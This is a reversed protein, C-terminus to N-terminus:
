VYCTEAYFTNVPRISFWNKYVSNIHRFLSKIFFFYIHEHISLPNLSTETSHGVEITKDKENNASRMKDLNEQQQEESRTARNEMTQLVSFPLENIFM